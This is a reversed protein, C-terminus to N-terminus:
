HAKWKEEGNEDIYNVLWRGSSGMNQGLITIIKSHCKKHCNACITLMNNWNYTGGDKGEFIRHAELLKYDEIGCFFCNKDFLKRCKKLSPKRAM